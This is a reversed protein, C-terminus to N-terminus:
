ATVPTRVNRALREYGPLTLFEVYHDGVTIDEFLRAAEDYRGASWAPEGLLTRIRHLEEPLL